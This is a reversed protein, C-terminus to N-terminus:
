MMRIGNYCLFPFLFLLTLYIVANAALQLRTASSTLHRPPKGKSIQRTDDLNELTDIETASSTNDKNFDGELVTLLPSFDMSM